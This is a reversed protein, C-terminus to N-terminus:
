KATPQRSLTNTIQDTEQMDMTPDYDAASPGEDDNSLADVQQRNALEEDNSVNIAAPSGPSAPTRPSDM